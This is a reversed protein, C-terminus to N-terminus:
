FLLTPLVEEKWFTKCMARLALWELVSFVTLLEDIYTIGVILSSRVRIKSLHCAWCAGNRRVALTRRKREPSLKRVKDRHGEPVGLGPISSFVHEHSGILEPSSEEDETGSPPELALSRNYGNSVSAPPRPGVFRPGTPSHDLPGEQNMLADYGPGPNLGFAGVGTGVGGGSRDPGYTTWPQSEPFAQAPSHYQPRQQFTPDPPPV